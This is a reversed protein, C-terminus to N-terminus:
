GRSVVVERGKALTDLCLLVAAANNNVVLGAEAGTLECLLDEVLSYRSGRRGTELDFELNSYGGGVRAIMAMAEDPLVSRGLNTHIVVGTGNILGRFNPAMRRQLREEVQAALNAFALGEPDTLRGALIEERCRELVERVSLKVQRGIDYGREELRGLFEDVKPISQLLERIEGPMAKKSEPTM